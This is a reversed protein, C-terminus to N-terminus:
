RYRLFSKSALLLAFWLSAFRYILIGSTATALDMSPVAQSLFFAATAEFSGINGPLFTLLGIIIAVSAVAVVTAFDVDIGISLFSLKVTMFEMLWSLFTMLTLVPIARSRSALVFGRHFTDPLKEIRTELRKISPVFKFLQYTKEFVFGLLRKNGAIVVVALILLIVLSIGAILMKNLTAYLVFLGLTYFIALTSIDLIRELLVTPLTQSIPHGLDRKLYYSRIPEGVRGPTINSIFLSAMYPGVIDSYNLKIGIAGLLLRWRILKVVIVITTVAFALFIIAIDATQITNVVALPNSNAVLLALLGFALVFLLIDVFRNRM